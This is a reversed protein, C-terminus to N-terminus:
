LRMMHTQWDEIYWPQDQLDVLKITDAVKKFREALPTMHMRGCIVILSDADGAEKVAKAAMYDERERNCRERENEPFSADENYGPPIGRANREELPMEINAYHRRVADCVRKTVSEEKHSWEEAIVQAGCDAIKTQLLSGFNEKQEREFAELKGTSSWSKIEAPQIQHNVGIILIRM